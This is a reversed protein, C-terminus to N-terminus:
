RKRCCQLRIEGPKLNGKGWGVRITIDETGDGNDEIRTDIWYGAPIATSEDFGALHQEMRQQALSTALAICGGERTALFGTALTGAMPVLIVSILVVAVLVEILTMGKEDTLVKVM